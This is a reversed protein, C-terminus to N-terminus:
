DRAAARYRHIRASEDQRGAADEHVVAEREHMAVHDESGRDRDSDRGAHARAKVARARAARGRSEAAAAMEEATM